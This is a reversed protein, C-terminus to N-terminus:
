SIRGFHLSGFQMRINYCYCHQPRMSRVFSSQRIYIDFYMGDQSLHDAVQKPDHRNWADVYSEVFDTTVM